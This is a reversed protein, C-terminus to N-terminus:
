PTRRQRVSTLRRLNCAELLMGLGSGLHIAAFAAVLRATILAAFAPFLGLYGALLGMALIAVPWALGGFTQVVASTWYLTGLFYVGGAVLGLAFARLPSPPAFRGPVGRWGALAVLLPVLAVWALAAHGYRPFSLALLLGSVLAFLYSV